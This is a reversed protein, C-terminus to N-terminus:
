TLGAAALQEAHTGPPMGGARVARARDAAKSRRVRAAVWSTGLETGDSASVKIPMSPELDHEGSRCLRCLRRPPPGGPANGDVVQAAASRMWRAGVALEVNCVCGMELNRHRCVCPEVLKVDHEVAWTVLQKRRRVASRAMEVLALILPNTEGEPGRVRSRSTM